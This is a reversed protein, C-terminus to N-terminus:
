NYRLLVPLLFLMNLTEIGTKERMTWIRIDLQMSSIETNIEINTSSVHCPCFLMRPVRNQYGDGGSMNMVGTKGIEISSLMIM